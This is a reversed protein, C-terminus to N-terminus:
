LRFSYGSIAFFDNVLAEFLKVENTTIQILEDMDKFIKASFPYSDDNMLKRIISAPYEYGYFRTILNEAKFEGSYINIYSRVMNLKLEFNFNVFIDGLEKKFYFVGHEYYVDYKLFLKKYTKKIESNSLKEVQFTKFDRQAFQQDFAYYKEIFNFEEVAKKYNEILEQKKM